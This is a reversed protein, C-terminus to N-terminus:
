RWPRDVKLKYSLLSSTVSLFPHRVQAFLSVKTDRLHVPDLVSRLRLSVYLHPVGTQRRTKLPEHVENVVVRELVVVQIM